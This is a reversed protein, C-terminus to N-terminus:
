EDTPAAKRTTASRPQRPRHNKVNGRQRRIRDQIQRRARRFADSIAFLPDAFREDLSPTRDINVELNGPLVLHISAEFLGGTRHRHDPAKVVVHCATLRGHYKELADVFEIVKNRLAVSPATGQFSVRLPTRM